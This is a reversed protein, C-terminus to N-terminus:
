GRMRGHNRREEQSPDDARMVARPIGRELLGNPNGENSPTRGFAREIHVRCGM